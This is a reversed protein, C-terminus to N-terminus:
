FLGLSQTLYADNGGARKFKGRLSRTTPDKQMVNLAMHRLVSLNHPGNGRWTREQDENMVVDLRWHLQNEIGWHARVVENLRQPSLPPSLLYYATETTIKGATERSRIVRGIAALGPWHHTQQLWGIDTCVTATRTQIRGHDANVTQDMATAPRSPDDFFRLVADHLTTQNAKLALVYDGGQNVVQQATKRQCNLADATV